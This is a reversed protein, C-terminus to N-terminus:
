EGALMHPAYERLADRVFQIFASRTKLTYLDAAVSVENFSGDIPVELPWLGDLIPKDENIVFEEDALAEEPSSVEYNKATGSVPYIICGTPGLPQFCELIIRQGKTGYDFRGSVLGPMVAHYHVTIGEDFVYTGASGGGVSYTRSLWSEHGEVQPKLPEIEPSVGGMTSAHVFPFHAVDRFNEAAALIGADTPIPAGVLYTMELERLEPLNPVDSLPTDLSTWVLGYKEVAPFAKIGTNAPVRGREGLSPIVSCTGSEGKFRWGHYPCEIAEGKVTGTALDAGRHPCRRETVAVKGEQTRFVVLREGLLTSALPKDLDQARAVPFWAHRLAKQVNPPTLASSPM